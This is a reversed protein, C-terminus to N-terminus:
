KMAFLSVIKSITAEFQKVEDKTLADTIFDDYDKLAQHKIQILGLGMETLNVYFFRKDETSQTKLLYGLECLRNIGATVSAKTIQLKNAIETISPTGLDNVADIYQLQHVTLKSFGSKTESDVQFKKLTLDFTNIFEILLKEM